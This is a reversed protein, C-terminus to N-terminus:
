FNVLIAGFALLFFRLWSSCSGRGFLFALDSSAAASISRSEDGELRSSSPVPSSCSWDAPKSASGEVNNVSRLSESLVMDAISAIPNEVIVSIWRRTLDMGVQLDDTQNM